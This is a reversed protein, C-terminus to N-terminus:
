NADGVRDDDLVYEISCLDIKARDGDGGIKVAIFLVQGPQFEKLIHEMSGNTVHEKLLEEAKDRTLVYLEHDVGNYFVSFEWPERGEEDDNYADELKELIDDHLEDFMKEAYNM